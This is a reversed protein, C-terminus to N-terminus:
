EMRSVVSLVLVFVAKIKHCVPEFSKILRWQGVKLSRVIQSLEIEHSRHRGVEIVMEQFAKGRGTWLKSM